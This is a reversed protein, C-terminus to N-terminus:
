GGTGPRAERMEGSVLHFHLQPIEQFAGGNVILRYGKEELGFERVLSQAVGLWDVLMSAAEPPVDLLSAFPRKPVLLNHVAYSPHPHHFALLTDTERLRQVPLAFSMHAFGWRALQGFPWRRALRFLLNALGAM